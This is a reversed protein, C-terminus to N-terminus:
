HDPDTVTEGDPHVMRFTEPTYGVRLRDATLTDSMPLGEGKRLIPPAVKIIAYTHSFQLLPFLFIPKHIQRAVATISSLLFTDERSPSKWEGM